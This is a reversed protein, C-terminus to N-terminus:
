KKDDPVYELIDGPQCGFFKCLKDLNETTYMKSAGREMESITPYRVLIKESLEKQSISVDNRLKKLNCKIM